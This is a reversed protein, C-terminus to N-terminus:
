EKFRALLLLFKKKIESYSIKEKAVYVFGLCALDYEQENDALQHKHLRYVERLRRKLWNRDSAKKFNKKPISFLVQPATASKTEKKLFVVRLPYVFLVEGKAFLLQINKKSTLRENKPFRM